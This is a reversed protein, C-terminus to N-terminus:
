DNLGLAAAVALYIWNRAGHRLLAGCPITNMSFPPPASPATQTGSRIRWLLDILPIQVKSERAVSGTAVLMLTENLAAINPDADLIARTVEAINSPLSGHRVPNEAVFELLTPSRFYNGGEFLVHQHVLKPNAKLLARLGTM